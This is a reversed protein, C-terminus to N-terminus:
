RSGDLRRLVLSRLIAPDREGNRAADLVAQEMLERMKHDVDSDTLAFEACIDEYARRLVAIEYARRFVDVDNDDDFVNSNPLTM